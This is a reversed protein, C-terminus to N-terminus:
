LRQQEGSERETWATHHATRWSRVEPRVVGDDLAKYITFSDKTTDWHVTLFENTTDRDVQATLSMTAATLFGGPFSPDLARRRSALALARKGPGDRADRCRRWVM